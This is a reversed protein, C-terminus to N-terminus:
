IIVAEFAVGEDVYTDSFNTQINALEDGTAYLYAGPLTVNRLRNFSTAEGAGAGYVYFALGEETYEGSLNPDSNIADREQDGVLLYTGQNSIFRYLPILGETAEDAVTFALGEETFSDPFDARISQSEDGGTFLYTGPTINSQFRFIDTDFPSSSLQLVAVQDGIEDINFNPNRLDDDIAVYLERTVPDIGLGETDAFRDDGGLELLNITSVLEGEPTVEYISSSNGTADDALLFNGTVPDIVIGQLEAEPIEQFLDIAAEENLSGDKAFQVIGRGRFDAAYLVEEGADNVTHYIGTVSSPPVFSFIFDSVFEFGGEAATVQAGTEPDVEVVAQGRTSLLILNGDRETGTGQVVAMGQIGESLLDPSIDLDPVDDGELNDESEVVTRIVAGTDPDLERLVWTVTDPDTPDQRLAETAFLTGTTPNFTLGDASNFDYVTTIEAEVGQGSSVFLDIHAPASSNTGDSATVLFTDVGGFNGDSTYSLNALEAAAIEDGISVPAGSLNLTGNGPLSAITLSALEDGDPDIFAPGAFPDIDVLKETFDTLEFGITTGAAGFKDVTGLTPIGAPNDNALFAAVQNGIAGEDDGDFVVYITSDEGVSLGEPDDIGFEARPDIISVLDGLRPEGSIVLEERAPTIEYIKNSGRFDDSVLLNGTAPDIALGAPLTLGYQSVDLSSLENGSLDFEVVEFSRSTLILVTDAETVAIGVPVGRQERDLFEDGITFNIGGDVLAGTIDVESIQNNLASAILLNGNDLATIGVATGLGLSSADFEDIFTGFPQASGPDISGFQLVGRNPPPGDPADTHAIFLTNTVPNFAIGDGQLGADPTILSSLDSDDTFDFSDILSLRIAM